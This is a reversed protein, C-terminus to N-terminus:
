AFVRAAGPDLTQAARAITYCPFNGAAAAPPFVTESMKEGPCAAIGPVRHFDMEIGQAPDTHLRAQILPAQAQLGAAVGLAEDAVGQGAVPQARLAKNM